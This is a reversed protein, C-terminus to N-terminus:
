IIEDNRSLDPRDGLDALNTKLNAIRSLASQDSGDSQANSILYWVIALPISTGGQNSEGTEEILLKM